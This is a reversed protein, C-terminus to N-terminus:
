EVTVFEGAPSGGHGDRVAPVEGDRIGVAGEDRCQFVGVLHEEGIGAVREALDGLHEIGLRIEDHALDEPRRQQRLCHFGPDIRIQDIRQFGGFGQRGAGVFPFAPMDLRDPGPGIAIEMAGDIEPVGQQHLERAIQQGQLEGMEGVHQEAIRVVLPVPHGANEMGPVLAHRSVAIHQTEIGEPQLLVPIEVDGLFAAAPGHGHVRLVGIGNVRDAM